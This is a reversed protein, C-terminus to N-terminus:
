RPAIARAESVTVDRNYVASDPQQEGSARLSGLDYAGFGIEEILQSVATKAAADDGSVFIARRDDLAAAKNGKTKLHEFWITNFAKVVRAGGLHAAVLESSTKEGSDLAAIQGDRNPYYNMADIVIKGRLDDAPLTVYDKLPIALLVMEGFRAAEEPTAARANPGLEAILARLTEPGRSNSIAVEHGADIFLKATTGGIHGAGIIGIKMAAIMFRIRRRVALSGDTWM